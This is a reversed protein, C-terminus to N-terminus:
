EGSPEWLFLKEEPLYMLLKEKLFRMMEGSRAAGYCAIGGENVYPQQVVLSGPRNKRMTKLYDASIRFTGISADYLREPPIIEFVADILGGYEEEFDPIDLAPDFCARVSFGMHLARRMALLRRKLDATRHEYASIVCQPSLTWALIVNEPVSEAEMEKLFYAADGKTRIEITLNQHKQAFACWRKGFGLVAEMALLDTDFSICLYMPHEKLLAEIESFYDELNIFAVMHGGPYMGQLYCYECDYLCNMLVSAYYFHANGFSQCVPAGPYVFHETRKALILATDCKQAQFDQHTRNFVDKFHGIEVVRSKPLRACIEKVCSANLGKEAYIHAFAKGSATGDAALPRQRESLGDTLRACLQAFARKEERKVAFREMREYEALQNLAWICAEDDLCAWAKLLQMLQMRMTETLARKRAIQETADKFLKRKELLRKQRDSRARRRPAEARLWGLLAPMCREMLRELEAQDPKQGEATDSLCKVFAVRDWSIFRAAAECIGSAEMDIMCADAGIGQYAAADVTVLPLQAFPHAGLDPYFSRGSGADRVGSAICMTGLALKGDAADLAATGFNVLCCQAREEGTCLSLYETVAACARLKGTGTVLLQLREGDLAGEFVMLRSFSDARKMHLERILARAEAYLATVLLYM